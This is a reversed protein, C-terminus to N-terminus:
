EAGELAGRPPPTPSAGCVPDNPAGREYSVLDRLWARLEYLVALPKWWPMRGPLPSAVTEVRACLDPRQRCLYRRMRHVHLADTVVLIRAHGELWPASCGVNQWTSRATRELVLQAPPVGLERAWAGMAEAEVHPNAVAGGSIVLRECGEARWAAVGAEVRARQIPQLSGDARTPHGAVLVACSGSGRPGEARVAALRFVLEAGLGSAILLAALLM